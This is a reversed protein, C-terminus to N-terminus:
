QRKSDSQVAYHSHATQPTGECTTGNETPQQTPTAAVAAWLSCRLPHAPAGGEEQYSVYTARVAQWQAIGAGARIGGEQM